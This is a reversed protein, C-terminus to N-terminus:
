IPIQAELTIRMAARFWKWSLCEDGFHGQSWAERLFDIFVPTKQKESFRLFWRISYIFANPLGRGDGGFAYFTISPELVSCM